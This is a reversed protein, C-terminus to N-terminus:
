SMACTLRLQNCMDLLFWGKWVLIGKGNQTAIGGVEEADFKYRAYTEKDHSFTLRLQNCMDASVGKELVPIGKGNQPTAIGGVGELM